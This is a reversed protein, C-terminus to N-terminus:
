MKTLGSNKLIAIENDVLMRNYVAVVAIFLSIPIIFMLLWPLILLFLLLFQSLEIGNETIYKVFSITKSFWILTVLLFVVALFVALVRRFIYRDYLLM